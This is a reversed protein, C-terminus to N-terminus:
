QESHMAKWLNKGAIIPFQAFYLSFAGAMFWLYNGDRTYLLIWCILGLLILAGGLMLIIIIQSGDQKTFEYHQLQRNYHM